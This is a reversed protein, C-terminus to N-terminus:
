LKTRGSRAGPAMRSRRSGFAASSSSSHAGPPRDAARRCPQCAPKRTPARLIRLVTAPSPHQGKKKGIAIVLGHGARHPVRQVHHVHDVAQVAALQGLDDHGISGRIGINDEAKQFQEPDGVPGCQRVQGVLLAPPDPAVGVVARQVGEGAPLDVQGLDAAVPLVDQPDDGGDVGAGDPGVVDHRHQLAVTVRGREALRDRHVPPDELRQVDQGEDVGVLGVAPVDLADAVQLIAAVGQAALDAVPLLALQVRAAIDRLSLGEGRLHLAVALMADDTVAAGGIAKGGIRVRATPLAGAAPTRPLETWASSMPCDNAEVRLFGDDSV